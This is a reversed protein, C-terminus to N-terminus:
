EIRCCTRSSLSPERDYPIIILDNSSTPKSDIDEQCRKGLTNVNSVNSFPNSDMFGHTQVWGKQLLGKATHEGTLTVVVDCSGYSDHDLLCRRISNWKISLEM